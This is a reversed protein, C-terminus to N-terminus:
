KSFSGETSPGKNLHGANYERYITKIQDLTIDRNDYQRVGGEQMLNPTKQSAHSLGASHGFEHAGTSEPSSYLRRYNEYDRIHPDMQDPRKRTLSDASIEMWRGGVPSEGASRDKTRDVIRFVHDDPKIKSLDDIVTIQVVATWTTKGQKGSYTKEITAKLSDAYTQIEQQSFHRSSLDIVVANLEIRYDKKDSSRTVKIEAGDPDTYKLPNQKGYAYLNLGGGKEEMPDTSIWRGLPASYLRRGFYHLGSERDREKQTFQYHERTQRPHFENRSYGFPYFATEEVLTGTSDTIVSSSGLHDQHYYRIRLTPDPINLTAPSATQVYLAKGPSLTAPLNSMFTLDGALRQHWQNTEADYLWASLTPPFSPSWAELGTGPVYGGGSQVQHSTPDAYAGIVAVTANTRSKLWLVTGASLTQGLAVPSYDGTTAEWQYAATINEGGSAPFVGTVAISCLNWGPYLRLRQIRTNASLSGTIEAVRTPGNFVYKTPQDHDRVEFHQGVYITATIQGSTTALASSCVALTALATRVISTAWDVSFCTEFLDRM